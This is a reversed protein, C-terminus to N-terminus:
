RSAADGEAEQLLWDVLRKLKSEGPKEQRYTIFYAGDRADHPALRPSLPTLRGGEIEARVMMEPLLAVGLGSTAACIMMSFLEYRPGLRAQRRLAEDDPSVWDAWADPRSALHLLPLRLVDERRRVPATRLLGPSCVAISRGEELLRAHPHGDWPEGGFYIAADFPSGAFDFPDPRAHLNVMIRSHMAGFRGLRPILWQTAFTPVVALEIVEMGGARSALEQTAREIAKIQDRIERVFRDGDSTLVVRKNIRQFFRVGYRAELAQVQRSIASETVNLEAAARTFSQLRAAAELMQLATLSPLRM